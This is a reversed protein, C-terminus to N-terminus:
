AKTETPPNRQRHRAITGCETCAVMASAFHVAAVVSLVIVAITALQAGSSTPHGLYSLADTTDNNGIIGKDKHIIVYWSGIGACLALGAQLLDVLAALGTAGRGPAKLGKIAKRVQIMGWVSGFIMIPCIIYAPIADPIGNFKAM